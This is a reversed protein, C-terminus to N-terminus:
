KLEETLEIEKEFCEKGFIEIYNDTDDECSLEVNSNDADLYLDGKNWADAILDEGAVYDEVEVVVTRTRTEVVKIAMKKLM